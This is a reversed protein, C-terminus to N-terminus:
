RSPLRLYYPRSYYPWVQAAYFNPLAWRAQQAALASGYAKLAQEQLFVQQKWTLERKLHDRYLELRHLNTEAQAQEQAEVQAKRQQYYEVLM